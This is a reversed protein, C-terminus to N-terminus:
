PMHIRGSPMPGNGTNYKANNAADEAEQAALTARAEAFKGLAQSVATDVQGTERNVQRIIQDVASTAARTDGSMLATNLAGQAALTREVLGNLTEAKTKEFKDLQDFLDTSDKGRTENLQLQHTLNLYFAEEQAMATTEAVGNSLTNIKTHLEAVAQNIKDMEATKEAAVQEARTKSERASDVSTTEKAARAAAQEVARNAEEAAQTLQAIEAPDASTQTKVQLQAEIMQATGRATGEAEKARQAREMAATLSQDAKAIQDQAKQVADATGHSKSIAQSFEVSRASLEARVTVLTDRAASARTVHTLADAERAASSAKKMDSHFKGGKGLETVSSIIQQRRAPSISIRWNDMETAEGRLNAAVMERAQESDAKIGHEEFMNIFSGTTPDYAGAETLVRQYYVARQDDTFHAPTRLLDDDLFNEPRNALKFTSEFTKGQILKQTPSDGRETARIMAGTGFVNALVQEEKVGFEDATSLVENARDMQSVLPNLARTAGGTTRAMFGQGNHFLTEGNKLQRRAAQEQIEHASKNRLYKLREERNMGKTEHAVQRRRDMQKQALDAQQVQAKHQRGAYDGLTKLGVKNAAAATAGWKAQGYLAKIKQAAGLEAPNGNEDKGGGFMQTMPNLRGPKSYYANAAKPIWGGAATGAAGLAAMGRKKAWADARNLGYKEGLKATKEATAGASRKSFGGRGREDGGAGMAAAAQMGVAGSLSTLNGLGAKQLLTRLLYLAALPIAAHIIAQLPGAFSSTLSEFVSITQLLMTIATAIVLKAAMFAGTMRLMRKGAGAAAGNGRAACLVLTGPLLILLLILGFQAIISGVALGGFAWLYIVATVLSMVGNVLRESANGGKLAEATTKLEAAETPYKSVVADKTLGERMDSISGWDMHDIDKGEWFAQCTADDTEGAKAANSPKPFGDGNPLDCTGWALMIAEWEEDERDKFAAEAPLKTAAGSGQAVAIDRAATYVALQEKAPVGANTELIRCVMRDGITTDGTAARNYFGLFAREWLYSVSAVADANRYTNLNESGDTKYIRQYVETAATGGAILAARDSESLSSLDGSSYAGYQNYLAQTYERCDPNQESNRIGSTLKTAKGVYGFGSGLGQGAEDILDTVTLAIWSPSGKPNDGGQSAAVALAQMTAIPLFMGLGLAVAKTGKGTILMRIAVGIGGIIMVWVLGSSWLSSAMNAFGANITTAAPRVLDLTLGFRMLGLLVSWGYGAILFCLNAIGTQPMQYIQELFDMTSRLDAAEKWRWAPLLEIANDANYAKGSKELRPTEGADAVTGTVTGTSPTTTVAVAATATATVPSAAPNTSMGLGAATLVALLTWIVLRARGRGSAPLLRGTRLTSLSSM